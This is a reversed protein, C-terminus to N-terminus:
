VVVVLMLILLCLLFGGVSCFFNSTYKNGIGREEFYGLASDVLNGLFGCLVVIGVCALPLLVSGNWGLVLWVAGLGALASGVLSALLGLWTVGGSVGKKTRKLTLLVIPEGDLVGIESAFKDATIACVSAFYALALANPSIWPKPMNLWYLLAAILPMAGNALVNKWGRGAEYVGIGEKMVRGARTVIASLVLFLLLSLLFPLGMGGGFVYILVGMAAALLLGKGDLTFLRVM